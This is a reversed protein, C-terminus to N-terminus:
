GGLSMRHFDPGTKRQYSARRNGSYMMRTVKISEVEECPATVVIPLTDMLFSPNIGTGLVTVEHKKALEDIERSLETYKYYPYSLEECSSIVHLGAKICSAIQGYVDKLFSGTM